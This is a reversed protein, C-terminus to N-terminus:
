LTASGLYSAEIDFDLESDSITGSHIWEIDM